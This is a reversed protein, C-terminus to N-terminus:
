DGKRLLKFIATKMTSTLKNNAKCENVAKVVLAGISDWFKRIFHVTFGQHLIDKGKLDEKLAKTMEQLSMQGEMSDRMEDSIRRNLWEQFPDEDDDLILFNEIAETGENVNQRIFINQYFEKM